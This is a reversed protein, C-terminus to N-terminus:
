NLLMTIWAGALRVATAFRRVIKRLVMALPNELFQEGGHM